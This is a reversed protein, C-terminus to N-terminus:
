SRHAYTNKNRQEKGQDGVEDNKLQWAQLNYGQANKLPGLSPQLLHEIDM